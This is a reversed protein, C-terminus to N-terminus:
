VEGYYLPFTFDQFGAHCTTVSAVAWTPSIGLCSKKSIASEVKDRKTKQCKENQKLCAKMEEKM